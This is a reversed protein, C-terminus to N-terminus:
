KKIKLYSVAPLSKSDTKLSMKPLINIAQLHTHRGEDRITCALEYTHVVYLLFDTRCLSNVQRFIWLCVHKWSWPRKWYNHYNRVKFHSVSKSYVSHNSKKIYYFCQMSSNGFCMVCAGVEIM